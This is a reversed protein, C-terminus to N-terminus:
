HGEVSIPDLNGGKTQLRPSSRRDPMSVLIIATAAFMGSWRVGISSAHKM